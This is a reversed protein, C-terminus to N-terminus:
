EQLTMLEAPARTNTARGMMGALESAPKPRSFLYGQLETCGEARLIELQAATEVGEATSRIGLDRCLGVIARVLYVADARVTLDNIFSRDIKVGDFPFQRL